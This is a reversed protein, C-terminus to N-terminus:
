EDLLSQEANYKATSIQLVAGLFADIASVTGVVEKAFPFGWIEALAFYLAGCAPLLIQAVFKLIDYVRNSM